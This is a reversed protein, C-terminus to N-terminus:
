QAYVMATPRNDETLWGGYAAQASSVGNGNYFGYMSAEPFGMAVCSTSFLASEKSGSYCTPVPGGSIAGGAVTATVINAASLASDGASIHTLPALLAFSLSRM